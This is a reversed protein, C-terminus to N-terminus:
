KTSRFRFRVWASVLHSLYIFNGLLYRKWLRRPERYLRYLWELGTQQLLLPARPIRGSIFDFAAGIGISVPVNLNGMNSAIWKEQKPTSMGVFLIDPKASRLEDFILANDGPSLKECMPPSHMGVIQLRPWKLLLVEKLRQLNEPSSGLFFVRYGWKEAYRCLAKAFDPGAIRCPLDVGIWRGGWVISMGDALVLDAYDLVRRLEFDRWALSVTYANSLCIQHPGKGSEIFVKVQELAQDGTLGHFPIGLLHVNSSFTPIMKSATKEPSSDTKIDVSTLV